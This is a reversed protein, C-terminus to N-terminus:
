LLTVKQAIVFIIVQSGQCVKRNAPRYINLHCDDAGSLLFEGSENWAISNVQLLTGYYNSKILLQKGKLARNQLIAM